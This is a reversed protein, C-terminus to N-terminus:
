SERHNSISFALPPRVKSRGEVDAQRLTLRTRPYQEVAGQFAARGIMVPSASARLAIAILPHSKRVVWPPYNAVTGHRPDIRPSSLSNGGFGM